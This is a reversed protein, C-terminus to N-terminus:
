WPIDQDDFDSPPMKLAEQKSHKLPKDKMGALLKELKLPKTERNLVESAVLETDAQFPAYLRMGKGVSGDQKEYEEVYLLVGIQKNMLDVLCEAQKDELAQTDPNWSKVTATKPAAERVKLVAMIANIADYGMLLSGDSKRTYVDFRAEQGDNSKFSFGVGETGKSSEIVEARTFVGVYKGRESIFQTKNDAKKAAEVDLKYM